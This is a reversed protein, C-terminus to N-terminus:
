RGSWWSEPKVEHPNNQPYDHHLCNTNCQKKLPVVWSDELVAGRFWFFVTAHMDPAEVLASFRNHADRTLSIWEAEPYRKRLDAKATVYQQYWTSV